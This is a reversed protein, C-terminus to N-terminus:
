LLVFGQLRGSISSRSKGHPFSGEPTALCRTSITTALVGEETMGQCLAALIQVCADALAIGATAGCLFGGIQEEHQRQGM